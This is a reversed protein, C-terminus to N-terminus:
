VYCLVLGLDGFRLGMAIATTILKRRAPLSEACFRVLPHFYPCTHSSKRHTDVVRSISKGPDRSGQFYGMLGNKLIGISKVSGRKRAEQEMDGASLM